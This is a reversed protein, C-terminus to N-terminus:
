VFNVIICLSLKTNNAQQKTKNQKNNKKQQQKKPPLPTTCHNKKFNERQWQELHANTLYQQHLMLEMCSFGDGALESLDKERERGNSLTLIPRNIFCQHLEM